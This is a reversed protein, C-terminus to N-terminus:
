QIAHTGGQATVLFREAMEGLEWVVEDDVGIADAVETLQFFLFYFHWPINLTSRDAWIERDKFGRYQFVERALTLSTDAHVWEGGLQPSVQVVGEMESPEIMHLRSALGQRVSWRNLGLTQPLGGTSAFHIPRDGLSDRIIALALRDGRGLWTGAPYQVAIDGLPVTLDQPLTGSGVQAMEAHSSQIIARSPPADPVPYVGVDDAPRFHRQREPSTHYQLQRIYWDTYLYQVVIVTVDQRIEEVEQLYWLPFTDNDGNTFLIGYPEVSQLMNYAWDRASHDDSRDAWAWNFVLPIFAVALLPSALALNRPGPIGPAEGWRGAGSGSGSSAGGGAAWRWAAVLGMGALFGWLHFSAIFFYDRERVERMTRDIGDPTLIDLSYGHRFNLYFVLLLTLTFALTGMFVGPGPGARVSVVLGWIGLGLFLLTVPLRANGPVESTALGRAWQWDFYQFYNMLQHGFNAQRDSLPPKAYQERTLNAALAPCGFQGNTYIAVAAGSLTECVPEGENIIPQQESRIPLFFNFSIGIAAALVCRTILNRDLLVRPKATLILLGLAPAPLLAMLQNTSGLVMLYVAMVLLWGSGPEDRRDYWRIALWSVAAIGLVSVTYVKENVNSQNWVTYATAAMLAGLWAGILPLRGAWRSEENDGRARAGRPGGREGDLWGRLIRWTLLFFFGTALASTTAALLNIRVAVDLGTPALLLSWVRGVAVFLPNGPPHPIGLIHATAIYESTDWFWTTPALTLIYIFLAGATAGAAHGYPPRSQTM